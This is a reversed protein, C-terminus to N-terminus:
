HKRISHKKKRVIRKRRKRTRRKGGLKGYPRNITGPNLNIYTDLASPAQYYTMTKLSSINPRKYNSLEKINDDKQKKIKNKTEIYDEIAYPIGNQEEGDPTLDEALRLEKNRKVDLEININPDELLLYVMDIDELKIARILPTDGDKNQANM